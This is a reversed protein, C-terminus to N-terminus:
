QSRCRRGCLAPGDVPDFAGRHLLEHVVDVRVELDVHVALRTLKGTGDPEHPRNGLPGPEPRDVAGGRTVVVEVGMGSVADDM